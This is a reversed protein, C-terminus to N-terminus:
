LIPVEGRRSRAHLLINHGHVLAGDQVCHLSPAAGFVRCSREGEGDEGDSQDCQECPCLLQASPRWAGGWQEVLSLEGREVCLCSLARIWACACACACACNVLMAQLTTKDMMGVVLAGEDEGVARILFCADDGVQGEVVASQRM